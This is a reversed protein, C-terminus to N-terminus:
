AVKVTFKINVGEAERKDAALRSQDAMWTLREIAADYLLKQRKADNVEEGKGLITSSIQDAFKSASIPERGSGGTTEALNDAWFFAAAYVADKRAADSISEDSEDATLAPHAAFLQHLKESIIAASLSRAKHGNRVYAAGKTLVGSKVGTSTMTDEIDAGSLVAAVALVKGADRYATGLLTYTKASGQLASISVGFDLRTTTDSM